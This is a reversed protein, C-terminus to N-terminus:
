NVHHQKKFRFLQLQLSQSINGLDSCLGPSDCLSCGVETGVLSNQAVTVNKMNDRSAKKERCSSSPIITEFLVPIEQRETTSPSRSLPYSSPVHECLTQVIATWLWPLVFLQTFRTIKNTSKTQVWVWEVKKGEIRRNLLSPSCKFFILGVLLYVFGVKGLVFGVVARAGPPTPVAVKVAQSIPQPLRFM